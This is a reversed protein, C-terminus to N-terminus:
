EMESWRLGAFAAISYLPKTEPCAVELLRPIQGPIQGPTLIHPEEDESRFTGINEM